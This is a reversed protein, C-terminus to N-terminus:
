LADLFDWPWPVDFGDLVTLGVAAGVLLNPWIGVHQTLVGALLVATTGVAVILYPIAPRWLSAVRQPPLRAMVAATFGEDPIPPERAADARLRAEIPGFGEPVGPDSGPHAPFRNKM